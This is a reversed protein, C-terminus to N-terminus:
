DISIILQKRSLWINWVGDLRESGDALKTIVPKSYLISDSKANGQRLEQVNDQINGSVDALYAEILQQELLQINKEGPTVFRIAGESSSLLSDLRASDSQLNEIKAVLRRGSDYAAETIQVDTVRKIKHLEMQEKMQKRQENSLKGDCATFVILAVAFYRKM